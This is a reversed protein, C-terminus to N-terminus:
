PTSEYMKKLNRVAPMFKVDPVAFGNIIEDDWMSVVESHRKDAQPKLKLLSDIITNAVPAPLSLGACLSHGPLPPSTALLRVAPSSIKRYLSEKVGAADVDGALLASMINDQSGMAITKVTEIEVGAEKLMRFPVIHAATSGEFYAVIKGKLEKLSTVSPSTTLLMSHYYPTGDGGLAVLLPKVGCSSNARGLPVPGTLALSISGNCLDEIFKAHDNYLKLEWPHGTVKKLYDVFPTYLNWIKDPSYFPIVAFTFAAKRPNQAPTADPAAVASTALFILLMQLLMTRTVFLYVKM